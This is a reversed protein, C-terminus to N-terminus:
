RAIISNHKLLEGLLSLLSAYILCAGSPLKLSALACSMATLSLLSILHRSQHCDIPSHLEPPAGPPPQRPLPATFSPRFPDPLWPHHPSQAPDGAAVPVPLSSSNRQEHRTVAIHLEASVSGTPAGGHARDAGCWAQSTYCGTNKSLTL